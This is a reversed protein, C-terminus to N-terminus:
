QGTVALAEEARRIALDQAKHAELLAQGNVGSLDPDNSPDDDTLPVLAIEVLQHYGRSAKVFAADPRLSSCSALLALAALTIFLNCNKKM